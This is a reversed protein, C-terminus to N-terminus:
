LSCFRFLLQGKLLEFKDLDFKWEEFLIYELVYSDYYSVMFSDYGKMEYWVFYVLGIKSVLFIYINLMDFVFYCYEWKIVFMGM